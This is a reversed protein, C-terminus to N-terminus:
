GYKEKLQALQARERTEVTNEAERRFRDPLGSDELWETFAREVDVWTYRPDGYFNGRGFMGGGLVYEIWEARQEPTSFWEGYFGFQDYHAIHGFLHQYLTHYIGKRWGSEPMGRKVFSALDNAAKAKDAATDFETATFQSATFIM